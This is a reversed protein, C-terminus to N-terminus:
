KNENRYKIPTTKLYKKFTNNFHSQSSFGLYVSIAAISKNTYKLLNKAENIKVNLIYESLTMGTEKKIKEFLSSKSLYLSSCIEESKIADHLHAIIYKNLNILFTSGNTNGRIKAVHETFDILMKMELNTIEDLSQALEVKQIYLDSLSMADKVDMHGRIAARSFITTACIFTDKAQRIVDYSLLGSRTSPAKKIWAKLEDIEGHEVIKALELEILFSNNDFDENQTNNIIEENLSEENKKNQDTILIDSLSIKEKNLIFNFMSLSQLVTELPMTIISSMSAIFENFEEKDLELELAIKSILENSPKIPRFPGIVIKYNQSNLFAYYFFDNTTYYGINQKLKIVEKEHLSFPDKPFKVFSVFDILLYGEYLRTPIGTLNALNRILYKLDELEM